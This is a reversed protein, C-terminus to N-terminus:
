MQSVQIESSSYASSQPDCIQCSVPEFTVRRLTSHVSCLQSHVGVGWLCNVQGGALGEGRGNVVM